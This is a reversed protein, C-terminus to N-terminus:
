VPYLSILQIVRFYSTADSCHVVNWIIEATKLNCEKNQFFLLLRILDDEQRHTQCYAMVVFSRTARSGYLLSGGLCFCEPCGCVVFWRFWLTFAHM